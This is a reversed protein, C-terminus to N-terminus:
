QFDSLVEVEAGFLVFTSPDLMNAYSASIWAGSRRIDSVRVEDVMGPFRDQGQASGLLLSGMVPSPDNANSFDVQNGNVYLRIFMGDFTGAVYYWTDAQFTNNPAQAREWNNDFHAASGVFNGDGHSWNFQFQQNANWLVQQNESLVAAANSRVWLSWSYDNVNFDNRDGFDVVDNNGDFEYGTGVVAPVLDNGNMGGGAQGDYNNATSDLPDADPAETLHWVGLYNGDWVGNPNDNPTMATEDGYHLAFTTNGNDAVLPLRIWARLLGSQDNWEEIEYDLRQGQDDRFDLDAGDPQAVHGGFDVHALTPDTVSVLVPFDTLNADVNAGDITLTRVFETAPSPTPTTSPGSSPQSSPEPSTGPDDEFPTFGTRGCAFTTAFVLGGVLWKWHM